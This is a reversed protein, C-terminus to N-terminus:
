KGFFLTGRLVDEGIFVRRGDRNESVSPTNFLRERYWECNTVSIVRELARYRPCGNGEPFREPALEGRGRVAKCRGAARQLTSVRRSSGM